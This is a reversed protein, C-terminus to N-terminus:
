KEEISCFLPIEDRIVAYIADWFDEIFSGPKKTASGVKAGMSSFLVAGAITALFCDKEIACMTAICATLSCGMGTISPMLINGGLIQVVKSGETIYDVEGSIMVTCSYKKALLQAGPLASETGIATDVGKTKNEREKDFCGLLSALSAIESANGRIVSIGGSAHEMLDKAIDNRWKSFGVGVPDFIVPVKKTNNNIVEKAFEIWTSDPTGMNLLFSQTQEMIDPIEEKATTVIPSGGIALTVNAALNVTVINTFLTVLPKKNRAGVICDWSAEIYNRM